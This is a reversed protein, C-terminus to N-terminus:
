FWKFCNKRWANRGIEEPINTYMNVLWQAVMKPATEKVIGDVMGVGDMM